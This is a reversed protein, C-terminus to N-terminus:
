GQLLSLLYQQRETRQTEIEAELKTEISNIYEESIMEHGNGDLKPIPQNHSDLILNGFDDVQYVKIDANPLNERLSELKEVDYKDKIEQVINPNNKILQAVEKKVPYNAVISKETVVLKSRYTSLVEENNEDIASKLDETEDASLGILSAIESVTREEKRTSIKEGSIDEGSVLGSTTIEVIKYRNNEFKEVYNVRTYDFLQTSPDVYKNAYLYVGDRMYSEIIASSMRDIEEESLRLFITNSEEGLAGVSEVKKGVIVTYDEGTPFRLRVDIYEGKTLDSPLTIMNFEQLRTDLEPEKDDEYFMSETVITKANANMKLTKGVMPIPENLKKPAAYSDSPASEGKVDVLAVDGSTVVDGVLMDKTFVYRKVVESKVKLEAIQKNTQMVYVAGVACFLIIMIIATVVASTVVKKKMPGMMM